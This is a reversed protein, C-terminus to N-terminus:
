GNAPYRGQNELIRRSKEIRGRGAGEQPGKKQGNGVGYGM